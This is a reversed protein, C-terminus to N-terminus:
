EIYPKNINTENSPSIGFYDYYTRWFTSYSQFGCQECVETAKKGIRILQKAMLIKKENIYKKPQIKLEKKFVAKLYSTSIGLASGIDDLKKISYLNENIWNLIPTLIPTHYQPQEISAPLLSLNYLIEKILSFYLNLFINEPFSSYYFDLRQFISSIFPTNNCDLVELPVELIEQPINLYQPNFLVGIKEYDTSSKITFYHYSYPKIIIM